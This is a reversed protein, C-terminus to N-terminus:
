SELCAEEAGKLKEAQFRNLRTQNMLIVEGGARLGSTSAYVQEDKDRWEKLKDWEGPPLAFLIFVSRPISFHRHEVFPHKAKPGTKQVAARMLDTVAQSVGGPYYAYVVRDNFDQLLEKPVSCCVVVEGKLSNKGEEEILKRTGAALEHLLETQNTAKEM